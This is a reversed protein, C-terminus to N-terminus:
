YIFGRLWLFTVRILVMFMQSGRRPNGMKM